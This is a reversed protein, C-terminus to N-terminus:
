KLFHPFFLMHKGEALGLEIVPRDGNSQSLSRGQLCVRQESCSFCWSEPCLLLGTAATTAAACLTVVLLALREVSQLATASVLKMDQRSEWIVSEHGAALYSGRPLTSLSHVDLSRTTLSLGATQNVFNKRHCSNSFRWDCLLKYLQTGLLMEPTVMTPVLVWVQPQCPESVLM